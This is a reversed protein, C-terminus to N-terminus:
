MKYVWEAPNQSANNKYVSFKLLTQGDSDTFVEGIEQKTSIQEGKKVYVTKLNGYATIYNGHQILVVPNSKKQVMVALVKGKFVARVKADKETAIRVGSSQIEVSPNIPSRQKGYRLKVIGKEVPWPLKGKNSIFDAAILKAEATLAFGSKYTSTKGAKKNSKAIEAKIIRDIEEDIKAAERQKEKIQVAYKNLDKKIEAMISQHQKRDAELQNQIVKNEAILKDKEEKQKVLDLNLDQLKKAKVKIDEAQQKQVKAYQNMYQLRKYAQRFNDSSLLFMVRSQESKNKYSKQITKAYNEKLITLEDRLQSIEKQNNNISRTLLNAQQNTVKILNNTVSLKYNLDEILATQDKKKNQNSFLLNNIKKIENRLEIRRAELQNKKNNQAQASTIGLLLFMLSLTLFQNFKM